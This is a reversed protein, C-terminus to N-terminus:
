KTLTPNDIVALATAILTSCCHPVVSKTANHKIIKTPSATLPTATTTSRPHKLV